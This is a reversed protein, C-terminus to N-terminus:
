IRLTPRALFNFGVFGERDNLDFGSIPAEKGSDDIQFITYAADTILSYIRSAQQENQRCTQADLMTREEGYFNPLVEFVLFPRHKALTAQLGRLVNLEAGEVDIKIVAIDQLAIERLLEDGIRTPVLTTQRRKRGTSDERGAISAMEDFDSNSYLTCIGNTDSLALAIIKANTLANHNIFQQIFFCCGIQPEFGFYPRTPDISLVKLLTQGVNAGIDVFAGQREALLRSMLVMVNPEHEFDSAMRNAFYGKIGFPRKGILLPKGLQYRIRKAHAKMGNLNV